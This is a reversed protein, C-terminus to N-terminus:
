CVPGLFSFNLVDFLWIVIENRLEREIGFILLGNASVPSGKSQLIGPPLCDSQRLREQRSLLHAIRLRATEHPPIPTIYIQPTPSSSLGSSFSYRPSSSTKPACAFSENDSEDDESSLISAYSLGSDAKNLRRKKNIGNVIDASAINPTQNISKSSLKRKHRQPQYLDELTPHLGSEANGLPLTLHDVNGLMTDLLNDPTPLALTAGSGFSQLQSRGPPTQRGALSSGFPFLGYLAHYADYAEKETGAWCITAKRPSIPSTLPTSTEPGHFFHESLASKNSLGSSVSSIFSLDNQIGKEGPNTLRTSSSSPRSPNCTHQTHTTSPRSAPAKSFTGDLSQASSLGSGRRPLSGLSIVSAPLGCPSITPSM